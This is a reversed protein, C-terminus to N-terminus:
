EMQEARSVGAVAQHREGGIGAGCEPCKALEMPMGCEGIAFPHGNICNYWHGSNTAIGGPGGVMAIKISALEEPTVNEYRPGEFLRTMEKTKEQLEECNGLEQCRHLADELLVRTINIRDAATELGTGKLEGKGSIDKTTELSGRDSWGKLQVVMAFVLTANVVIRSLSADRAQNILSQCDRLFRDTDQSLDHPLLGIKQVLRMLPMKNPEQKSMQSFGFKHQLIVGRAKINILRAGLSIRNDPEPTAIKLKMMQSSLPIISDTQPKQSLAMADTLRKIPQHEAGMRQSLATADKSLQVGKTYISNPQLRRGPITAEQEKLLSLSLQNEIDNLRSQLTRLDLQGKTLFRKSTEDMVARNIVRNYRKTVFQRIPVRCDPCSPMTSALSTSVDRLGNFKGAKDRTYVGDLGAVGDVSESTFFHGCGLRVIPTENLNIESYLKSEFFDVRADGKNGCEQCLDIPCDEGCLSPCQHGCGLINDCREDCPLRDCLAACPMSCSGQHPCSWTCKEICPACAIACLSKCASHSCRVECKAECSDCSKGDHCVKLCKHNCTGYPRDCKRKCVPHDFLKEEGDSKQLCRGCSSECKHGCGLMQTCPTPCRFIESTVDAFCGIQLTHGCRPVTKEVKVDCKIAALNDMQHCSVKEKVHGCPLTVDSIKVLCLGCKEGCFKPCVHDCSKRIRPCPKCCSFADHLVSAHCKAQCQHGCPELRRTCPLDCGGEPSKKEFDHPESCLIPVATHRPCCLALETGVANRNALQAHVDAWMPVNLYTESNGILYMGHQARSLLVNVRNETRLFGVKRNSNSRVLSVIIVKAEEGQFNDVTALRLTQLLAKKEIPKQSNSTLSEDPSEEFGDAVLTELDRESLCVEFFKSLSARLNRLQGTYPTLLAIDEPKYEGQRVLHRVLSTAMDVEWQNSHSKVRSGDDRGDENHRHDLWFLNNQMGVVDPLKLVSEHDELKPYVRGILRSIEPRMRRQVNLQAVSIARLGPEGVARREFQSRDLQWAMGSATELSLSHNQIQPRLQRHDGIQIFHEVGPMLASIVHAEMVEAAEECIVVKAGVRRLTEVHRALGTTTIGIVDAQALTRRNIDEYVAGIDKRLGEASDVAEFLSAIEEEYWQKFWSKALARRQSIELHFINRKAIRTLESLQVNEAEKEKRPKWFDRSTTELWDFLPDSEKSVKTYGEADCGELQRHIEPWNRSLFLQIRDWILGKRAQHLPKLSRTALKMYEEIKGYSAGLTRSEVGTKGIDKSVVRLNKGELEPAQSRGGARIIKEIGSALLSKLFQDLAHNTYCIVLIPGLKAKKKIALLVQVLRVGLYSKGTGPPGQILSYERTLASILGQCQGRDLGTLTEMELIDISEPANPNLTLNHAGHKTISSLPFVFGPHRAYAPPPMNSSDYEHYRAPLIWQQFALEREQQTRQLNKLIPVFTAPILGHFDVLVGSVEECYLQLLLRLEKPLSAALKVTISPQHKDSILSSKSKNAQDKSAIKATVELFLVHKQRGDFALFCVLSGEEFRNSDQWWKCKEATSKKRIQPPTSFCLTAELEHKENIFVHGIRSETYLHTQSSKDSLYPRTFDDQQILDRLVDKVSGFIDHRLLRFTSDIYRLLPDQLFQSRSFNTSPLYEANDSVIEGYTPILRIMSIDALDNDHRGGPLEMDLPFSSEVVRTGQPSETQLVPVLSDNAATVLNRMIELRSSFADLDAVSCAKLHTGVLEDLLDLLLPLGDNLRAQRIRYLLQYLANVLLKMINTKFSTEDKSQQEFKQGLTQCVCKLFDIARDGNPGSFSSYMTGVFSDVSLCNLLSLHTIVQLFPEVYLPIAGSANLNMNQTSALIFKQGQLNDDVLDKALRQHNESNESDLIDLAGKWLQLIHEAFLWSGSTGNRLIRRWDLYRQADQSDMPNDKRTRPHLQSGDSSNLNHSFKCASGYRCTGRQFHMCIKDSQPHRGFSISNSTRRSQWNRNGRGSM